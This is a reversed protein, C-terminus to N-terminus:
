PQLDDRALLPAVADRMVDTPDALGTWRTWARAAQAVLMRDGNAARMGRARAQRVLETEAPIYVVDFVAASPNILGVDVVPGPSLMGVSTANVFVDAHALRKGVRPDGFALPDIPAFDAFEEALRRPMAVDLDLVTLKAVGATALGYTAAHGVGGSGAVVASRGTLEGPHCSRLATLFGLVDTNFGILRGDEGVAVSNVAGIRRADPEIEDLLTMVIRKHPATIQFGMWGDRRAQEVQEALEAEDVERLEYRAEVGAAAFAANHMVESHRRRLPKGFLATTRM